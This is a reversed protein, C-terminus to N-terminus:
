IRLEKKILNAIFRHGGVTPHIGDVFRNYRKYTEQLDIVQCNPNEISDKKMQSSLAALNANASVYDAPMWCVNAKKADCQIPTLHIVKAGIANAKETLEVLISMIKTVTSTGLIFDNTGTMILVASPNKSLVDREYRARVGTATDGNEGKNIIDYESLEQRLLSVFCESRRHPFGNVISHGICIFAPKKSM